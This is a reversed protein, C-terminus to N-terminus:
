PIPVEVANWEPRPIGVQDWRLLRFSQPTGDVEGVVDLHDTPHCSSDFWFENGEYTCNQLRFTVPRLFPDGPVSFAVNVAAVNFGRFTCQSFLGTNEAPLSPHVFVVAHDQLGAGDCYANVYNLRDAAGDRSARSAAHHLISAGACGYVTLDEYRYANIYAGHDVGAAGCHYATFRIIPHFKPTVQWVFLGDHRNNHALNDEFVWVGETGPSVDTLEPWKYGSANVSGQVGFAVCNRVVNSHDKGVGLTFGALVVDEKNDPNGRIRSAVCSEWVIDSSSDKIDWWFADEMTDHSICNLFTIGNSEHPVYAHSGIDRMVCGVVSTGRVRGRCHHFHLGYRGLVFDGRRRPGLHRFAAHRITHRVPDTNRIFIHARGAQTGEVRVNRTLNLVEPQYTVGPRVTVEPHPWTTASSLTITRGSIATVRRTDYADWFPQGDAPPMTPAITLEDGVRWGTPDTSLTIQNAGAPVAGTTRTWPLKSSGKLALRGRGMVWLGVDSALVDMGGGRFRGERIGVFRLRHVVKRYRPAMRLTGRVVVNGTSSLTRSRNPDFILMAGPRVVVGAVRVDRDLLIRRQVM